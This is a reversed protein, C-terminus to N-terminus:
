WSIRIEDTSEPIDIVGDIVDINISSLINDNGKIFEIIM